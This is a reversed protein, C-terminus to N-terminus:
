LRMEMRAKWGQLTVRREREEEKTQERGDM